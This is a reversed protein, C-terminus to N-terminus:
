PRSSLMEEEWLGRKRDLHYAGKSSVYLQILPANRLKRRGIINKKIGRIKIM